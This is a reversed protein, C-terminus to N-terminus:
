GAEPSTGRATLRAPQAPTGEVGPPSPFKAASRKISKPLTQEELKKPNRSRLSKKKDTEPSKRAFAPM